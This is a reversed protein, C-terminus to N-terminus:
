AQKKITNNRKEDPAPKESNKTQNKTLKKQKCKKQEKRVSKQTRM